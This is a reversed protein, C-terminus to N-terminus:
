AGAPMRASHESWGGGLAKYLDILNNLRTLRTRVLIQQAGYLSRYAELLTLYDDVGEQFRLEALEYASRSATVALQESRIQDDLTRKGALGDAVERFAVQIAQEYNAIEVRKKVHAVDLNALLAGGRFIPLTIHPLFAWARSGSDFLGDLSASATGASGTLSIAPLFAARAAGINANAGRLMQEAARIDPRRVLLESPLGTPLDSPVIGDPLTTAADLQSSLEPTLPQGLLLVLANRDRAVQRTYASRNAEANRLAIEALRLDLQTSNGAAALDATLDYSRKQTALTDETLRLLEQDARLTLYANAVEAVLSLQTAIRNEELALYTALAQDSLSRIRGWLDLEWATTVGAVDYRKSVQGDQTAGLDGPIRESAGSASVSLNPLMAARQIRYLAQAAEVNLAARRMDRNNHLSIEILQQLLPDRFFDRWGIDAAAMADPKHRADEADSSYTADVPAAPREYKPALSCGALAAALTLPALKLCRRSRTYLHKM